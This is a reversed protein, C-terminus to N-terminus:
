LIQDLAALYCRIRQQVLKKALVGRELETLDPKSERLFEIEAALLNLTQNKIDIIGKIALDHYAQDIREHTEELAAADSSLPIPESPVYVRSFQESM